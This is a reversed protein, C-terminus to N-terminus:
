NPITSVYIDNFFEGQADCGGHIFLLPVPHYSSYDIDDTNSVHLDDIPINQGDITVKWDDIPTIVPDDSPNSDVPATSDPLRSKVPMNVISFNFALRPTPRTEFDIREVTYTSTNAAPRLRYLQDCVEDNELLGGFLYLDQNFQVMKHMARASLDGKIQCRKSRFTRRNVRYLDNTKGDNSMGGHLYLYTDDACMAFEQLPPPLEGSIKERKVSDNEIVYVNIDSIPGKPSGGSWIYTQFYSDYATAM